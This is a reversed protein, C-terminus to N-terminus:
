QSREQNEANTLAESITQGTFFKKPKSMNGFGICWQFGKGPNLQRSIITGPITPSFKKELKKIRDELSCM